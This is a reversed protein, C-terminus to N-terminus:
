KKTLHKIYRYVNKNLELDLRKTEEQYKNRHNKILEKLKYIAKEPDNKYEWLLEINIIYPILYDHFLYADLNLAMDAEYDELYNLCFKHAEEDDKFNKSKAIKLVELNNAYIDMQILMEISEQTAREKNNEQTNNIYENMLLQFFISALETYQNNSYTANEGLYNDHIAHGYEHALSSICPYNLTNDITIYKEDNNELSGCYSADSNIFRLNNGRNKFLELFIKQIEKDPISMYFDHLIQLMHKHTYGTDRFTDLVYNELELNEVAEQYTDNFRRIVQISKDEEKFYEKNTKMRDELTENQIQNYLTDINKNELFTCLIKIDSTISEYLELDIHKSSELEQKKKLLESLRKNLYNNNYCNYKKM